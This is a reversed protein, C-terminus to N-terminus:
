VNTEKGLEVFARSITTKTIRGLLEFTKPDEENPRVVPLSDIQFEILKQATDLLTEEPTCTVINPMRTMIISVPISELGKNGLSARLLDKRSVVGALLGKQNVVFLTGVDELFLTVIADYVSASEAVVIPVAKYDNVILKHLREAIVSSTPRGAYFYGVRPRADLYGSMTLISLDPRLTARTLNLHEAINEGTIPGEDKVIQLIQEQRKTLEM